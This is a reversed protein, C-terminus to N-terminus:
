RNFIDLMKQHVFDRLQDVEMERLSNFPLVEGFRLIMKGPRILLKGKRKIAFAGIMVVPVIDKQAERALRFAGRKFPKFKGTMTRGGEPLILISIQQDLRSKAAQLSKVAQRGNKHSIPIMGLQRIIPGYFPWQFHDELEVGILYNPIFGYLILIDFINVHNAMFLYTGNASFRELGQLKVRIFMARVVLRCGAKVYRSFRKPEFIFTGLYVSIGFPIFLSLGIIWVMLSVFWTLARRFLKTM